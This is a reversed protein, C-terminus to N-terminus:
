VVEGVAPRPGPWFPLYSRIRTGAAPDAIVILGADVAEGLIRSASAINKDDIGLRQRLSANTMAQRRMASLPKHAFLVTRTFEVWETERRLACLEHVLSVLYDAPRDSTL